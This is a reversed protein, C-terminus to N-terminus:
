LIEFRLIHLIESLSNCQILANLNEPSCLIKALHEYIKSFKSINNKNSAIMLVLKIKNKDWVIGKKNILIAILTEKANMQLAHPIAFSHFFCTSSLRERELVSHYFDEDVVGYEKLSQALFSIAEEKTSISDDIFFLKPNFCSALFDNNKKNEIKQICLNIEKDIRKLDDQTLFPSIYIIKRGIIELPITSIIINVNLRPISQNDPNIATVIISNGYKEYLKQKIYDSIHQYNNAYLLINIQSTKETNNEIIFGIYVSLFSIEEDPITINFHTEINKAFSVAIDYILPCSEKITTRIQNTAYSNNHARKILEYVHLTLNQISDNFNVNIMYSNLVSLLIQKISDQFDEDYPVVSSISNPLINGKFLNEIYWIDQESVSISYHNSFRNCIDSALCYESTKTKSPSIVIDKESVHMGKSMRYLAIIINFLLSSSYTDKIYYGNTELSTSLIEHIKRINMDKFYLDLNEINIINSPLKSYIIERLLRRKNYETGQIFVNSNQILLTLENEQIITKIKNLQQQLSSESIYLKEALDYFNWPKDYFLLNRLLTFEIDDNENNLISTEDIDNSLCYGKKDAIVIGNEKLIKMENQITRLSVNLLNAIVKGNMFTDQRQNSLLKVIEKQRKSLTEM